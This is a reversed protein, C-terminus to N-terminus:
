LIIQSVQMTIYTLLRAIVGAVSSDLLMPETSHFYNNISLFLIILCLITKRTPIHTDIVSDFKRIIIQIRNYFLKSLSDQGFIFLICYSSITWYMFVRSFDCSLVTFMPILSCFQFIMLTSFPTKDQRKWTANNGIFLFTFRTIVYYVLLFLLPRLFLAYVPTSNYKGYNTTLHSIFTDLTDWGLASISNRETLNPQFLTPYLNNWSHQITDAIAQNGSYLCLVAFFLLIPLSSAIRGLTHRFMTESRLLYLIVFPGIVFFFAEHLNFLLATLLYIIGLKIWKNGNYKLAYLIVIVVLMCLCDKRIFDAGLLTFSLPLIWWCLQNKRFQCLLFITLTVLTVVCISAIIWRPDWSTIRCIQYIGEGLLGRRVYGGQYNILFETDCYNNVDLVIACANKIRLYCITILYVIMVGNFIKTPTIEKTLNISM